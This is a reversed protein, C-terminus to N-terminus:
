TQVLELVHCYYNFHWHPLRLFMLKDSIHNMKTLESVPQQGATKGTRLTPKFNLATNNQM